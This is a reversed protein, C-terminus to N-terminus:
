SGADERRVVSWFATGLEVADRAGANNLHALYRGVVRRDDLDFLRALLEEAARRAIQNDREWDTHPDPLLAVTDGASSFGSMSEELTQYGPCLSEPIEAHRYADAIFVTGGPRVCGRLARITEAADSWVHPAAIWLVADYGRERAVVDRIDAVSFQCRDAVGEREAHAAAKAVHGPLVDFGRVRAGFERAVIASVGGMGCPVDLVRAGRTLGLHALEGPLVRSWPNLMQDPYELRDLFPIMEAEVEMVATIDRVHIPDLRM